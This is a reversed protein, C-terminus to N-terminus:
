ALAGSRSDAEVRCIRHSIFMSLLFFVIAIALLVFASLMTRETNFDRFQRANIFQSIGIMLLALAGLLWGFYRVHKPVDSHDVTLTAEPKHKQVADMLTQLSQSPYYMGGQFIVSGEADLLKIDSAFLGKRVLSIHDIESYFIKSTSDNSSLFMREELIEVETSKFKRPSASIVTVLFHLFLFLSFGAEVAWQFPGQVGKFFFCVIMLLFTITSGIMWSTADGIWYTKLEALKPM